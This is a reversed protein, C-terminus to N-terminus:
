PEIVVLGNAFRYAIQEKWSSPLAGLVQVDATINDIDSLSLDMNGMTDNVYYGYASIDNHYADKSMGDISVKYVGQLKGLWDSRDSNGSIQLGDNSKRYQSDIIAQEKPASYASIAYSGLSSVIGVVAGGIAGAVTGIGPVVSGAVAGATATKGINSLAGVGAGGIASNGVNFLGNMLQTNMQLNRNDIDSQRMRYYYEKWSDSFYDINYCPITIMENFATGETSANITVWISSVTMHVTGYVYNNKLELKHSTFPPAEFVVNGKIDRIQGINDIDVSSITGDAPWSPFCISPTTVVATGTHVDMMARYFAWGDGSKSPTTWGSEGSLLLDINGVTVACNWLNTDVANEICNKLWAGTMVEYIRDVTLTCMYCGHTVENSESDRYIFFVCLRDQGDRGLKTAIRNYYSNLSVKKLSKSGSYRYVKARTIFMEYQFRATEFADIAYQIDTMTETVFSLDAVSFYYRMGDGYDIWGYNYGMLQPISKKVRIPSGLPCTQINNMVLKTDLGDFYAKQETESAFRGVQHFGDTVMSYCLTVNMAM